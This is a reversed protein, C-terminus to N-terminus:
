FVLIEFNVVPSFSAVFSALNRILVTYHWSSVQALM